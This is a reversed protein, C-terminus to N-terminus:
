LTASSPATARFEPPFYGWDYRNLDRGGYPLEVGQENLQPLFISENVRAWRLIALSLEM